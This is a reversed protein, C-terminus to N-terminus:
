SKYAKSFVESFIELEEIKGMSVRLHTPYLSYARHVLVNQQRLKAEFQSVDRKIDACVFNTESPLPEIDHKTFTDNVLARGENIKNLSFEIFDEETYSAHAAALGVINPWAMVHNRVKSILDSRGMAYGIRMGAMGYLKSFTRAVIINEGEKILDVMSSYEPDLTLENYAEDVLVTAKKGIIRCFDRLVDGDITKGTPNNPNCVYVMSVSDDLRDELANLDISMEKDLPVRIVKTGIKQAYGLHLDYTFAPCLISGNKGWGVVAASLAENSGSSLTVQNMDLNNKEAILQLLENTIKGPYYAGKSSAQAAARLAKKSPGYPNENSSLRIINPSPGVLSFVSPSLTLSATGVLISNIVSRRTIEIAMM